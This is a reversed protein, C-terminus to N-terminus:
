VNYIFVMSETENANYVEETKGKRGIMMEIKVNTRLM